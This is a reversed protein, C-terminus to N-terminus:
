PHSPSNNDNGGSFLAAAGGVGLIIGIVGGPTKWWPKKEGPRAQTAPAPPTAPQPKTPAPTTPQAEAPKAPETVQAGQLQFQVDRRYVGAARVPLPAGAQIPLRTGDPALANTLQYRAGVPVQLTYEGAANSASSTFETGSVVDKYVVKFGPAPRGTPDLIVGQLTAPQQAHAVSLVLSPALLSISLVAVLTRRLWGSVAVRSMYREGKQLGCRRPPL